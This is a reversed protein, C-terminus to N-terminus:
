GAPMRYALVRTREYSSIWVAQSQNGGLSRIYPGNEGIYFGIHGWNFIVICGRRPEPIPEGWKLWPNVLASHIGEVGAQVMCWSTFCACWDTEDPLKDANPLTTSLMYEIIRPNHKAGPIERVGLEGLAISMWPCEEPNRPLAEDGLSTLYQIACWGKLGYATEVRKWKGDPSTESVEVIEQPKLTYLARSSIRAAERVTLANITTRYKGTPPPDIVPVDEKALYKAPCWGVLGKATQIKKWVVGSVIQYELVEVMENKRLFGTVRFQVGPVQRVTLAFPVVYNKAM